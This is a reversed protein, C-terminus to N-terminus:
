CARVERLDGLLFHPHVMNLGQAEPGRLASLLPLTPNPIGETRM